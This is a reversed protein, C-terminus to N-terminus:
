SRGGSCFPILERLFACVEGSNELSYSAATDYIRDRVVIGIGLEELSKFADEDTVDDGIFIPFVDPGDLNLINLLYLLAKGKHWDMDPRLEFVKKGYTKRLGRNQAVVQNVVEEVQEVLEEAVLRYHVAIAFRKREVLVGDISALQAVLGQEAKDLVPLFQEGVRNELRMGTPGAIDFGHSGAYILSDINVLRRVDKM